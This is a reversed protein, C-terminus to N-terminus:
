PAVNDHLAQTVSDALQLRPEIPQRPNLADGAIQLVRPRRLRFDRRLVNIPLVFPRRLDFLPPLLLLIRFPTPPRVFQRSLNFPVSRVTLDRPRVREFCRTTICTVAPFRLLLFLLRLLLTILILTGRTQHLNFLSSIM